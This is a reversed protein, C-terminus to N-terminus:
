QLEKGTEYPILPEWKPYIDILAIKQEVTANAQIFELAMAVKDEPTKLGTVYSIIEQAKLNIEETPNLDVFVLNPRVHTLSVVGDLSTIIVKTEM